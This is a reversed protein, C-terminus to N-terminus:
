AAEVQRSAILMAAIEAITAIPVGANATAHKRGGGRPPVQHAYRAELIFMMLDAGPAFVERSGSAVDVRLHAFREHIDREM